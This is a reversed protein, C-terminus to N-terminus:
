KLEKKMLIKKNSPLYILIDKSSTEKRSIIKFDLKENIKIAPINNEFIDVYAETINKNIKSLIVIQEKKLIGLLNNGRNKKTVYGVGFHISNPLSEFQLENLM